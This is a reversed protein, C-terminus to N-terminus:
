GRALDLTKKLLISVADYETLFGDHGNDSHVVQLGDVCGPM